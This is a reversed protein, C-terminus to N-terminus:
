GITPLAEMRMNMSKSGRKDSMNAIRRSVFLELAASRQKAAHCLEPGLSFFPASSHPSDPTRALAKAGTGHSATRVLM